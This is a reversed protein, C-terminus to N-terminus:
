ILVLPWIRKSMGIDYEHHQLDAPFIFVTVFISVVVVPPPFLLYALLLAGLALKLNVHTGKIPLILKLGVM